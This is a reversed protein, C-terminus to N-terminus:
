EALGSDAAHLPRPRTLEPRPLVLVCYACVPHCVSVCVCLGGGVCVVVLVCVCVCLSRVQVLLGTVPGAIWIGQAAALMDCTPCEAPSALPRARAQATQADLKLKEQFFPTTAAYESSWIM